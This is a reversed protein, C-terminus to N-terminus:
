KIIQYNHKIILVEDIEKKSFFQKFTTNTTICGTRFNINQPESARGLSQNPAPLPKADRVSQISSHTLSAFGDGVGFRLKPRASFRKIKDFL